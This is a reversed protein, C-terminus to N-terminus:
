CDLFYQFHKHFNKKLVSSLILVNSNGPNLVNKRTITMYNYSFNQIMKQYIIKNQDNITKVVKYIVTEYIIRDNAELPVDFLDDKRPWSRARNTPM